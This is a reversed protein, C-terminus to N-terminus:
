KSVWQRVYCVQWWALEGPVIEFLHRGPEDQNVSLENVQSGQLPICGQLLLSLFAHSPCISFCVSLCTPVLFVVTDVASLPGVLLWNTNRPKSTPQMNCATIHCVGTEPCWELLPLYHHHLSPHSLSVDKWSEPAEQQRKQDRWLPWLNYVLHRCCFWLAALLRILLTHVLFMSSQTNSEFSVPLFPKFTPHFPGPLVRTPSYQVTNSQGQHSCWGDAWVSRIDCSM